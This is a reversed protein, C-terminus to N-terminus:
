SHTLILRRTVPELLVSAVVNRVMNSDTWLRRVDGITDIILILNESEEM